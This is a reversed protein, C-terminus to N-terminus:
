RLLLLKETDHYLGAELRYFYVGSSLDTANLTIYHTGVSQRENVLTQVERGLVDFVILTVHSNMPLQYIILTTPNFPNPYNQSPSFGRTGGEGNEKVATIMESLPRRWVGSGATGAFLNTGSVALGRVDANTWGTNVAAWSAGNNTSLFVGRGYTGAFLNTGSLTLNRVDSGTSPVNTQVWQTLLLSVYALSSFVVLVFRFINKM